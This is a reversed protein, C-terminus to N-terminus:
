LFFDKIYINILICNNYNFFKKLYCNNTKMENKYSRRFDHSFTKKIKTKLLIFISSIIGKNQFIPM